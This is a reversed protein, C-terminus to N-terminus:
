PEQASAVRRAAEAGYLLRTLELRLQAQTAGPNRLRVGALAM